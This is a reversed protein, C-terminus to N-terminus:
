ARKAAFRGALFEAQRKLVSSQICEPFAIGFEQFLEEGYYLLNYDCTIITVDSPINLISQKFQTIFETNSSFILNEKLEINNM